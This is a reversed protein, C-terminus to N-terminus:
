TVPLQRTLNYYFTECLSTADHKLRLWVYDIKETAFGKLQSIYRQCPVLDDIIFVFMVLILLTGKFGLCIASKSTWLAVFILSSIKDNASLWFAIGSFFLTLPLNSWRTSRDLITNTFAPSTFPKSFKFCTRDTTSYSGCFILLIPFLFIASEWLM